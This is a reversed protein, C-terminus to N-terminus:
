WSRDPMVVPLAQRRWPHFWFLGFLAGLSSFVVNDINPARGAFFLKGVEILMAIASCAAWALKPRSTNGEPLNRLTLYGIVAFLLTKEV